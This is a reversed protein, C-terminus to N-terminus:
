EKLINQGIPDRGPLSNLQIAGMTKKCKKIIQICKSLADIKFMSFYIVFLESFVIRFFCIQNRIYDSVSNTYNKFNSPFAIYLVLLNRRM